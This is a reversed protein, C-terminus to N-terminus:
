DPPPSPHPVVLHGHYHAVLRLLPLRAEVHFRLCDGDGTEHAVIAPMLWRPCPLGLVHLRRLQMEFRGQAERLEFALRVPGLQEVVQRGSLRMHSRMVRSPFHRTWSEECAQADLEFRIPGSEARRPTGLLWAMLRAPATEPAATEVQGSLAHRGALRHFRQLAPALRGYAQAGLAVEIM